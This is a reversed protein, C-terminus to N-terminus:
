SGYNRDYGNDYRYDPECRRSHHHNQSLLLIGAAVALGIATNRRGEESASAASPLAFMGAGLALVLAGATLRHSLRMDTPSRGLGGARFKIPRPVGRKLACRFMNHRRM